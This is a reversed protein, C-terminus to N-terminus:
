EEVEYHFPVFTMAGYGERAPMNHYHCIALGKTQGIQFGRRIFANTVVRKPHTPAKKSASVYATRQLSHSEPVPEGVIVNLADTSVNHRGGHHPIQVFHVASPLHIGQGTAFEAAAKLSEVGADGILLYGRGGNVGFLIASSENEASTTVSDPLYEIDWAGAIFQIAKRGFDFVAEIASEM